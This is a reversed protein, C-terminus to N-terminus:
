SYKAFEVSFHRLQCFNLGDQLLEYLYTRVHIGTVIVRCAQLHREFCFHEYSVGCFYTNAANCSLACFKNHINVPQTMRESSFLGVLGRETADM